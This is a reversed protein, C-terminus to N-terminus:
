IYYEKIVPYDLKYMDNHWKADKNDYMSVNLQADQTQKSVRGTSIM